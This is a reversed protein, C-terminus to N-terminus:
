VLNVFLGPQPNPPNIALLADILSVVLLVPLIAQLHSSTNAGNKPKRQRILPLLSKSYSKMKLITFGSKQTALLSKPLMKLHVVPQAIRLRVKKAIFAINMQPIGSTMSIIVRM